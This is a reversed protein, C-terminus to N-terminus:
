AIGIEGEGSVVLAGAASAIGVLFQAVDLRRQGYWHHVSNALVTMGSGVFQTGAAGAGTAGIYLTFTAPTGTVNLIEIHRLTIYTGPTGTGVGGTTDPPNLLDALSTTLLVPGFSFQKNSAM